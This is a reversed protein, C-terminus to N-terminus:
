PVDKRLYPGNWNPVNDPKKRLAELGLAASPYTGTELKYLGLANALNAIEAQAAVRKAKDGQKFVNVGVLAVFLSIIVVVVLMEILTIGAQSSRRNKMHNGESM